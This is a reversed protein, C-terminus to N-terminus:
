TLTLAFSDFSWSLVNVFRLERNGKDLSDLLVSFSTHGSFSQRGDLNGVEEITAM